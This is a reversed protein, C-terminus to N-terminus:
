SEMVRFVAEAVCHPCKSPDQALEELTRNHPCVAPEIVEEKPTVQAWWSGKKVFRRKCRSCYKSGDCDEDLAWGCSCPDGLFPM